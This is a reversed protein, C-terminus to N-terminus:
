ENGNEKITLFMLEIKIKFHCKGINCCDMREKGFAKQNEQAMEELYKNIAKKIKKFM